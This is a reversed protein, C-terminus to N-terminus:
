LNAQQSEQSTHSTLIDSASRWFSVQSFVKGDILTFVVVHLHLIFYM